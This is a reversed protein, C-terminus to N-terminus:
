KGPMLRRAVSLLDVDGNQPAILSLGLPCDEIEGLPLSLQPLACLGATSLLSLARGRFRDLEEAPMALRPAAGQRGASQAQGAARLPEIELAKRDGALEIEIPRAFGGAVAKARFRDSRGLRQRFGDGERLTGHARGCDFIAFEDLDGQKM